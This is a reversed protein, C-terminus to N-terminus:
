EEKYSIKSIKIKIKKGSLRTNSSHIRTRSDKIISMLKSRQEAITQSKMLQPIPSLTSSRNRLIKEISIEKDISEISNVTERKSIM